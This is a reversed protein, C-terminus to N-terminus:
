EDENEKIIVYTLHCLDTTVDEAVGRGDFSGRQKALARNARRV